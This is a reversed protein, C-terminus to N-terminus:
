KYTLEGDVVKAPQTYPHEQWKGEGMIHMVKWAKVKFYDSIMSRHCRWWLAESCMLVVRKNTALQSLKDVEEKFIDTEMYDTYGRFFDNRWSTNTSNPAAERRGGLAEFHTYKIAKEPLLIELNEKNFQPFKRSGPFRRIDALQEISFSQLMAVFEESSRSSHGITFLINETSYAM